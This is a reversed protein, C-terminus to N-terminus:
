LPRNVRVAAVIIATIAKTPLCLMQPYVCRASCVAKDKACSILVFVQILEVLGNYRVADLEDAFSVRPLNGSRRQWM